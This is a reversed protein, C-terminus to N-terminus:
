YYYNPTKTVFNGTRYRAKMESKQSDWLQRYWKKVNWNLKMLVTWEHYGSHPILSFLKDYVELPKLGNLDAELQSLLDFKM